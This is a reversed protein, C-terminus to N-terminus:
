GLLVICRPQNSAPILELAQYLKNISGAAANACEDLVVCDFEHGREILSKLGEISTCRLRSSEIRIRQRNAHSAQAYVVVTRDFIRSLVRASITHGCGRPGALKVTAHRRLWDTSSLEKSNYANLQQLWLTNRVMYRLARKTRWTIIWHILTHIVSM